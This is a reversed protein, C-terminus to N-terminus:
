RVRMAEEVIVLVEKACGWSYTVGNGGHGYNHVVFKESIEAMEDDAPLGSNERELRIGGRFSDDERRSPRLGVHESIVRAQALAPMAKICRDLIAVSIETSIKMNGDMREYTGGLMIHDRQPMIHVMGEPNEDDCYITSVGPPRTVKVLQGRTPYVLADGLKQAGLGSCNIVINAQSLPESMDSITSNEMKGGSAIYRAMLHEMYVTMDFAPYDVTYGSRISGPVNIGHQKAYEDIETRNMSRFSDVYGAKAWDPADREAPFVVLGKVLNLGQVGQRIGEMLVEFTDKGWVEGRVRREKNNDTNFPEWFSALKSVPGPIDKAWIETKYGAEQLEIASTLGIIGAGIVIVKQKQSLIERHSGPKDALTGM